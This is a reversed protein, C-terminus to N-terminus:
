ASSPMRSKQRDRPSPSTYLLCAKKEAKKVTREEKKSSSAAAQKKSGSKIYEDECGAEELAKAARKHFMSAKFLRSAKWPSTNLESATNSELLARQLCRSLQEADEDTVSKNCHVCGKLGHLATCGQPNENWTKSCCSWFKTISEIGCEQAAISWAEKATESRHKGKKCVFVVQVPTSCDKSWM